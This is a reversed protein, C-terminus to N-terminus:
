VLISPQLAHAPPKTLFGRDSDGGAGYDSIAPQPLNIAFGMDAGDGCMGRIASVSVALQQQRAHKALRQSQARVIEHQFHADAVRHRLIEVRLIAETTITALAVIIAGVIFIGVIHAGPQIM